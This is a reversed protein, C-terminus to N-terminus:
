APDFGQNKALRRFISFRRKRLFLLVYGIKSFLNKSDNGFEGFKLLDRFHQGNIYVLLLEILQLNFSKQNHFSDKCLAVGFEVWEM